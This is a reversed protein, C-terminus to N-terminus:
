NKRVSVKRVRGAPHEETVIAWVISCGKNAWRSQIYIQECSSVCM